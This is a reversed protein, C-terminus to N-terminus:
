VLGECLIRLEDLDFPKSVVARAGRALAEPVTIDSFGTMLVVPLSKDVSKLLEIGSVRPMRIDSVVLDVHSKALYERAEDVNHVSVPHAGASSLEAAIIDCLDKEDDVILVTKGTLGM